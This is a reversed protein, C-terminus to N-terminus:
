MLRNCHEIREKMEVNQLDSMNPKLKSFDIQLSTIQIEAVEDFEEEGLMAHLLDKEYECFLQKVIM